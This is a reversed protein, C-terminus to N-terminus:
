FLGKQIAAGLVQPLRGALERTAQRAPKRVVAQLVNRLRTADARRGVKTSRIYRAYKLPNVMVVEVRLEGPHVRLATTWADRSAGSKVPWEKRVHQHLVGDAAFQLEDGVPGLLGRVQNSLDEALPGTITVTARGKGVKIM